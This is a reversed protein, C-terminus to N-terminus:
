ILRKSTGGLFGHACNGNGAPASLKRDMEGDCEDVVCPVIKIDDYVLKDAWTGCKACKFPRMKRNGRTM